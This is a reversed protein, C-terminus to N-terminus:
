GLPPRLMTGCIRRIRTIVFWIYVSSEVGGVMAWRKMASKRMTKPRLRRKPRDMGIQTVPSSANIAPMM